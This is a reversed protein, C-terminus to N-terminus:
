FTPFPDLLDNDDQSEPESDSEASIREFLRKYETDFYVFPVSRGDTLAVKDRSIIEFKTITILAFRAIYSMNFTSQHNRESSSNTQRLQLRRFMLYVQYDNIFSVKFEEVLIVSHLLQSLASAKEKREFDSIGNESLICLVKCFSDCAILPLEFDRTFSKSTPYTSLIKLAKGGDNTLNYIPKFSSALKTNTNNEQVNRDSLQCLFTKLWNNLYVNSDVPHKIKLLEPMNSTHLKHSANFNHNTHVIFM